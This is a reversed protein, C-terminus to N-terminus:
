ITESKDVKDFRGHQKVSSKDKRTFVAPIWVNSFGKGKSFKIQNGRFVNYQQNLKNLETINKKRMSKCIDNNVIPDACPIAIIAVIVDTCKTFGEDIRSRLDNSTVAKVEFEKFDSIGKRVRDPNRHYGLDILDGYFATEIGYTRKVDRLYYKKRRISKELTRLIRTINDKSLGTKEREHSLKM